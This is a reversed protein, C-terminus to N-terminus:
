ALSEEPENAPSRTAARRVTVKVFPSRVDDLRLDPDISLKTMEAAQKVRRESLLEAYVPCAKYRDFCFRFAYGLHDLNFHEACRSDARNLFPCHDARESM